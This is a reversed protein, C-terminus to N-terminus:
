RKTDTGDIKVKLYEKPDHLIFNHRRSMHPNFFYSPNWKTVRRRRYDRCFGAVCAFRALRAPYDLHMTFRTLAETSSNPWVKTISFGSPRLCTKMKVGKRKLPFIELKIFIHQLHTTYCGLKVPINAYSVIFNVRQNWPRKTWPILHPKRTELINKDSKWGEFKLKGVFVNIHLYWGGILAIHILSDRDMYPIKVQM